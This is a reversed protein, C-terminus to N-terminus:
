VTVDFDLLQPAGTTADYYQINISLGGAIPIVTIVPDPDRAVAAEMFLQSRIVGVITAPSVADGIYSPLGAGYEPQWIYDGPNTLLRRLVRQTGLTSGDVPLIDGGASVVLDQGWFQSLDPM